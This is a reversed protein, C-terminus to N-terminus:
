GMRQDVPGCCSSQPGCPSEQKTTFIKIVKSNNEM